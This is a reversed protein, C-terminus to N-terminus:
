EFFATLQKFKFGESLSPTVKVIDKKWSGLAFIGVFDETIDWNGDTETIRLVDL